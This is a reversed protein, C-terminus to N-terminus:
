SSVRGKAESVGVKEALSFDHLEMGEGDKRDDVASTSGQERTKEGVKQHELIGGDQGGTFVLLASNYFIVIQLHKDLRIEALPGDRLTTVCLDLSISCLNIDVGAGETYTYPYRTGFSALTVETAM